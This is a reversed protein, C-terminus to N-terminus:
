FVGLSARLPLCDGIRYGNFVVQDKPVPKVEALGLASRKSFSREGIIKVPGGASSSGVFDECAIVGRTQINGLALSNKVGAFGSCCKIGDGSLQGHVVEFSFDLSPLFGSGCRWGAPMKSSVFSEEGRASIIEIFVSIKAVFESSLL